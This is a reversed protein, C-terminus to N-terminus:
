LEGGSIPNGNWSNGTEIKRLSQTQTDLSRFLTPASHQYRNLANLGHCDPRCSSAGGDFQSMM